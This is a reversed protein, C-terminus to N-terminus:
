LILDKEKKFIRKIRWKIEDCVKEFWNQDILYIQEFIMDTNEIVDYILGQKTSVQTFGDKTDLASSFDSRELILEDYVYEFEGEQLEIDGNLSFTSEQNLLEQPVPIGLDEYKEKTWGREDTPEKINNAKQVKIKGKENIETSIVTLFLMRPKSM